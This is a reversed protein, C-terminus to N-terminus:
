KKKDEYMRRLKRMAEEGTADVTAKARTPLGEPFLISSFDDDESSWSTWGDVGIYLPTSTKYLPDYIRVGKEPDYEYSVSDGDFLDFERGTVGMEKLLKKHEKPIEMSSEAKSKELKEQLTRARFDLM